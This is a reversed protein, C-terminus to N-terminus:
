PSRLDSGHPAPRDDEPIPGRDKAVHDSSKGKHVIAILRDVAEPDHPRDRVYTRLVYAIFVLGLVTAVFYVLLFAIEFSTITM